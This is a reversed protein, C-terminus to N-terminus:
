ISSSTCTTQGTWAKTLWKKEGAIVRKLEQGMDQRDDPMQVVFTETEPNTNRYIDWLMWSKRSPDTEKASM